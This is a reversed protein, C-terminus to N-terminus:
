LPKSCYPCILPKQQYGYRKLVPLLKALSKKSLPKKGRLISHLYANSLGAEENVGRVSLAPHTEFFDRLIEVTVIPEQTEDAMPHRKTKTM